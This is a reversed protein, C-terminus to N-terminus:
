KFYAAVAVILAFFSIVTSAYAARASTGAHIASKDASQASQEAARVGRQTLELSRSLQEENQRNEVEDIWEAMYQAIEGDSRNGVCSRAWSLGKQLCEARTKDRKENNM